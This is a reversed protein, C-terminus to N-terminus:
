SGKIRGSKSLQDGPSNVISRLMEKSKRKVMKNKTKVNIRSMYAKQDWTLYCRKKM